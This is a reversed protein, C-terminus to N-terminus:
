PFIVLCTHINFDEFMISICIRNILQVESMQYLHTEDNKYKNHLPVLPSKFGNIIQLLYLLSLEPRQVCERHTHTHTYM